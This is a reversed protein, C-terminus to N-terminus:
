GRYGRAGSPVDVRLVAVALCAALVGTGARRGGGPDDRVRVARGSKWLPAERRHARAPAPIPVEVLDTEPIPIPIEVLDTEPIPVEVLDAEPSPVEVLIPIAVLDTEPIPIEVLGTDLSADDVFGIEPHADVLDTEPSADDELDTEPIPVKVLDTQPIPIEVPGTDLSHDDGFGTEPSDDVRGVEVGGGRGLGADVGGPVPAADDETLPDADDRAGSRRLQPVEVEVEFEFEFRESPALLRRRKHGRPAQQEPARRRKNARYQSAPIPEPSPQPTPVAAPQPTPVAALLPAQADHCLPAQVDDPQPAPVDDAQPVQADHCQPEQVDHAHPVRADDSERENAPPTAPAHPDPLVPIATQVTAGDPSDVGVTADSSGSADGRETSGCGDDCPPVQVGCLLLATSLLRNVAPHPCPHKRPAEQEEPTHRRQREREDDPNTHCTDVRPAEDLRPRHCPEPGDQVTQDEDIRSVTSDDDDDGQPASLAQPRSHDYYSYVPHSSENENEALTIAISRQAGLLASLTGSASGFTALQNSPCIAVQNLRTRPSAGAGLWPEFEALAPRCAKDLFSVAVPEDTINTIADQSKGKVYWLGRAGPRPRGRGVHRPSIGRGDLHDMLLAPDGHPPRCFGARRRVQSVPNRSRPSASTEVVDEADARARHARYTARILTRRAAGRGCWCSGAVFWYARYSM